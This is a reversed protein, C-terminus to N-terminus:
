KLAVYKSGRTAGMGPASHLVRKRTMAFEGLYFGIMQPKIEVNVFEKGNFVKVTHNVMEPYIVMDRYHTRLIKGPNKRMRKLFKEYEKPIGRRISRRRRSDVVKAFEEYDMKQLSELNYGRLTFEKRVM